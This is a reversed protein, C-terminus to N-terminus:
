QLSLCRNLSLIPVSPQITASCDFNKLHALGLSKNNIRMIDFLLFKISYSYVEAPNLSPYDSYFDLGSVM